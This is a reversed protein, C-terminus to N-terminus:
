GKLQELIDDDDEDELSLSDLPNSDDSDESSDDPDFPLDDDSSNDTEDKVEESKEEESKKSEQNRAKRNRNLKEMLADEDEEKEGEGDSHNENMLSKFHRQLIEDAEEYSPISPLLNSLPETPLDERWEEPISSTKRDFGSGLDYKGYEKGGSSMQINKEIIFDIGEDLDWFVDDEDLKGIEAVFKNVLQYSFKFVKVKGTATEDGEQYELGDKTVIGRLIAFLDRYYYKGKDKDDNRYYKQSINCIPCNHDNGLNRLCPVRVLEDDINLTHELFQQYVILPNEQDPDELVRVKTKGDKPLKWHPYYLGGTNRGSNNNIEQIKEQLNKLSRKKSM